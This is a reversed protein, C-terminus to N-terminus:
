AATPVPEVAVGPRLSARPPPMDSTADLVDQHGHRRCYDEIVRDSTTSATLGLKEALLRLRAGARAPVRLQTTNAHQNPM